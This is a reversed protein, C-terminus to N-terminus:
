PAPQFSVAYTKPAAPAELADLRSDLGALATNLAALQEAPIAITRVHEDLGQFTATATVPDLTLQVQNTM